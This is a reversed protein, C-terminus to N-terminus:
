GHSTIDNKRGRLERKLMNASRVFKHREDNDTFQLCAHTIPKAPCKITLQETSMGITTTIEKLIDQVEQETMDDHFGAVVATRQNQDEQSNNGEMGNATM